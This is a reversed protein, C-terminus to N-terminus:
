EDKGREEKGKLIRAADVGWVGGLITGLLILLNNDIPKDTLIFKVTLAAVLVLAVYVVTKQVPSV